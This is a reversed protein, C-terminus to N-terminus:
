ATAGDGTGTTLREELNYIRRDRDQLAVAYRRNEDRLRRNVARLRAIEERRTRELSGLLNMLVRRSLRVSQLKAELQLLRTELEGERDIM